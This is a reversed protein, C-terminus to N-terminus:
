GRHREDAELSLRALTTLAVQEPLTHIIRELEAPTAGDILMAVATDIVAPDYAGVPERPIGFRLEVPGKAHVFLYKPMITSQSNDVTVHRSTDTHKSADVRIESIDTDVVNTTETYTSSEQPKKRRFFELYILVGLFACWLIEFGIM